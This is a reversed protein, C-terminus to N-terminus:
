PESRETEPQPSSADAILGLVRSPTYPGDDALVLNFQTLADEIGSVLAAPVGVFGGEGAGKMGLPNLPAPTEVHRLHFRPVNAAVPITYDMYGRTLPLGAADYVIEEYLTAGIGQMVGGMIQDDVGRPNLVRGCDHAVAYDLVEVVGTEIDVAVVAAHCASAFSSGAVHFTGTASLPQWRSIEGLGVPANRGPLGVVCGDRWSLTDVAVDFHHAVVAIALARLKVAGDAVAAGTVAAGRSAYTGGGGAMAQGGRVFISEAPIGLQDSLIQTLASTMRQGIEVNATAITVTGDTAANLGVTEDPGTATLEVLMALGFGLRMHRHESEFARRRAAFQTHDIAELAEDLCLAYQGSDYVIRGAGPYSVGRDVPFADDAILNRRRIAIRDIGLRRAAADMMREMAFVAQPHGAGRYVNLPTKNTTVSMTHGSFNPIRYAGRVMAGMAAGPSNSAFNYGAGIDSRGEVALATVIGDDSLAMKLTADGQRGHSTAVFQESRSETWRVRRGLRRAAEAVLVEEPYFAEKCGFGGGLALPEYAVAEPPLDLLAALADRALGPTQTTAAVRLLGTETDAWAEVGRPELPAAAVRHFKFSQELVTSAAAFAAEPEGVHHHLAHVGNGHASRLQAANHGLAEDISRMPALPSLHLVVAKAAAAAIAPTDGIVIAVPEGAYRVRDTALVSQFAPSSAETLDAAPMPGNRTLDSAVLGLLVGDLKLAAKLDIGDIAAHAVPSRVVALYVRDIPERKVFFRGEGRLLAADERRPVTDAIRFIANM